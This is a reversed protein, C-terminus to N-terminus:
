EPRGIRQELDGVAKAPRRSEIVTVTELGAAALRGYPNPM